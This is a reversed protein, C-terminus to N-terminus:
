TVATASGPPDHPPDSQHVNTVQTALGSDTGTVAAQPIPPQDVTAQKSDTEREDGLVVDLRSVSAAESSQDSAKTSLNGTGNHKAATDPHVNNNVVQNIDPNLGGNGIAQLKSSSQRILPAPRSKTVSVPDSSNTQAGGSRDDFVSNDLVEQTSAQAQDLKGRLLNSKQDDDPDESDTGQTAGGSDISGSTSKENCGQIIAGLAVVYSISIFRM